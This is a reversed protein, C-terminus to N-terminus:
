GGPPRLNADARRGARFRAIGLVLLALALWPLEGWRAYPPPEGPDLLLPAQAWGLRHTTAVGGAPEPPGGGLPHFTGHSRGLPDFFASPGTNGAMVIAVGLEAARLRAIARIQARFATQGFWGYNATNLLARAGARRWRRCEAPFAIEFCIVTGAPVEESGPPGTRLAFPAQDGSGPDLEPIVSMLDRGWQLAPLWDGLPTYEGWPVLRVKDHRAVGFAEFPPRWTPDEPRPSPLPDDMGPAHVPRVHFLSDHTGYDDLARHLEDGRRFHHIAGLLWEDEMGDPVDARLRRMVGVQREWDEPFRAALEPSLFSWPVMTEPWLVAFIEGEGAERYAAASIEVHRDFAERIEAPELSHKLEQPVAAQVVVMEGPTPLLREEVAHRRTAALAALIGLSLGVTAAGTRVRALAGAPRAALAHVALVLLAGTGAALFSFGYAGTWAGAPLLVSLGLDVQEHAAFSLSRAPWPMGGLWFTRVWEELVAGSAAALVLGVGRTVLRVWLGLLVQVPALLVACGVVQVPHIEGLWALTSTYLVLGYAYAWRKWHRGGAVGLLALFPADVLLVAAPLPGPPLALRWSAWGLALCAFRAALETRPRAAARPGDPLSPSSM